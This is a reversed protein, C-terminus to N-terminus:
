MDNPAASGKLKILWLLLVVVIGVGAICAIWGM